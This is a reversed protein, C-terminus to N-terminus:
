NAALPPAVNVRNRGSEKATYLARDTRAIWDQLAEGPHYAAVGFSATLSDVPAFRAQQLALRLNEATAAGGSADQQPLLILFEEGGWRCIVDAGRLKGRLLDSFAKLVADGVGHGHQDNIRKFHDIDVMTLALPTGYRQAERLRSELASIFGFRNLLGTLPDTVSLRELEVNQEQITQHKLDLRRMFGLILLYVASMGILTILMLVRTQERGADLIESISVRISILARTEGLRENFGASDGYQRLLDAPAQEPQGHCKMCSASNPQVPVALYLWKKGEQEVVERYDGRQGANFRRLVQLEDADALNIPNRPNGSALKFYIPALGRLRREGNLGEMIQRAIYTRSMLYPSFYDASLLGADQLRFVETRQVDSVYSHVARQALLVNIAQKEAERLANAESRLNFQWALGFFALCFVLLLWLMANRNKQSV